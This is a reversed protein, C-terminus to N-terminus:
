VLGRYALVCLTLLSSVNLVNLKRRMRLVILECGYFIVILKVAMLGVEVKDPMSHLIYGAFLVVFIVLYDMPTIKFDWKEGYRIILGIAVVLVSFYVAELLSFGPVHHGLHRTELYIVFAATVYHVAQAIISDVPIRTVFYMILTAAMIAAIIGFDQPVHKTLFGVAVFLVPIAATVFFVPATTFLRNAKIANIANAFVSVNGARHAFWGNREAMSLFLFLMASIGLYISMLLADSEYGLFIASAILAMQISYIIMVAEYHHFKLQLLRHHIHDKHARYWKTGRHVRRVMVVVLDVIPLGLFLLPLVPSLAPNVQQTLVVALVGLVFGLFQSGGDGMFVRAPHTNYRLFGFVGGLAAIAVLVVVPGGEALFALYAICGLTLLSMGGALGDLGDSTNIANIMGVIAFVTFPKGIAEVQAGELIIFPLQTIYVDGFYVVIAAAIIQGLFKPYHGLERMDDWVGFVLLIAVGWIFATLWPTQPSWLLIPLLSGAVIGLGGVRPVPVTHVKRPDPKDIMGLVPALRVMLPIVAMSAVTATVFTLLYLIQDM